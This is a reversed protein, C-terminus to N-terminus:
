SPMLLSSSKSPLATSINSLHHIIDALLQL